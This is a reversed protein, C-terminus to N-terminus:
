VLAVLAKTDTAVKTVATRVAETGCSAPMSPAKSAAWADAAKVLDRAHVKLPALDAKESSAPHWTAAMVHHFANMEKWPGMMHDAMMGMMGMKAADPKPKTTDQAALPAALVFLLSISRLFSPQSM